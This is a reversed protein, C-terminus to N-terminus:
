NRFATVELYEAHVRTSGNGSRNNRSWLETLERHLQLQGSETLSAFARVMPGYNMRFFDVVESPTFPYDFHYWRRTCEIRACGASLRQRVTPEDGWLAPSPMGTPALHRAITKFMQGVFGEPTWNVM